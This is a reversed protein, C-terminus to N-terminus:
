FQFYIFENLPESMKQISFFLLLGIFIAWSLNAGWSLKILSSSNKRFSFLEMNNPMLLVIFIGLMMWYFPGIKFSYLELPWFQWTFYKFDFINRLVTDSFVTELKKIEMLNFLTSSKLTQFNTLLKFTNWTDSLTKARFPIWALSVATFTIFWSVITSRFIKIIFNYQLKKGIFQFFHNVILYSGHIAGWLVFNWSAGHWLGGLLMTMFLNFYRRILGCRNGGLSIYLYDRLFHSLTMHWTRWFNIINLSKYPSFFNIPLYLGFFLGLGLAMDSYGSFDFYIQLTYSLSGVWADLSTLSINQAISNYYKDAFGAFQDALLLKKSLGLIFLSLAEAWKVQKLSEKPHLLQPMIDKHHVIPGAVLQPFFTVFLAYELFKYREVKEKYCDVLYAIKQFSFFSIGIPLLIHQLPIQLNFVFNLSSISFDLYKFYALAGLNFVLGLILFIKKQPKQSDSILRGLFFNFITSLALLSLYYVSWFGYFFLSAALLVYIIMNTNQKRAFFYYAALVSPLFLFVFELSHFLVIREKITWLKLFLM